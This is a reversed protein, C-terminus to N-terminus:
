SEQSSKYEDYFKDVTKKPIDVAQDRASEAASSVSEPMSRIMDGVTESTAVKEGEALETLFTRATEAGLALGEIRALFISRRVAQIEDWIRRRGGREEDSTTSEKTPAAKKESSQAM